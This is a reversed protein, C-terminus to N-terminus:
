AAEDYAYTDDLQELLRHARQAGIGGKLVAMAATQCDGAQAILQSATQVRPVLWVLEAACIMQDAAAEVFADYADEMAAQAQQIVPIVQVM